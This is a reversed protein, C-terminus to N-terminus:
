RGGGEAEFRDVLALLRRDFDEVRRLLIGAHGLGQMTDVTFSPAYRRLADINTPPEATNIAAIPAEIERITSEFDNHMWTRMSRFIDFWHERPEESALSAIYEILSDPAEPTFAFARVFSTDGYSERFAALMGEAEADTLRRDPDKITDVFVIGAVRDGLREAAELVVAGGMSFGVLVVNQLDLEDVVAVVDEGFADITWEERESGSQGHGALELAVVRRHRALTKPHEGWIGLPNTWGHVLVIAPEGAGRVEYHIPVGDFSPVDGSRDTPEPSPAGCASFGIALIFLIIRLSAGEDHRFRATSVIRLIRRDRSQIKISFRRLIPRATFHPM